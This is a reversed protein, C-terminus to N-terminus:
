SRFAAWVGQIMAGGKMKLALLTADEFTQREAETVIQKSQSEQRGLM